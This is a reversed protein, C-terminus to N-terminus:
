VERMSGKDKDMMVTKSAQKQRTSHDMIRLCGELGRVIIAIRQM